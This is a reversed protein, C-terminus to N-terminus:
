FPCSHISRSMANYTCNIGSANQKSHVKHCVGMHAHALEVNLSSSVLLMHLSAQAM